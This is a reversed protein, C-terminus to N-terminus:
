SPTTATARDLLPALLDATRDAAGLHADIYSFAQRGAYERRSEDDLWGLLIRALAEADEAEAGGGRGLLDTAARSNLHRPGFVVPLGAAAPELVSHLGHRHFGGGVFAMTGGTYLPALIGVRDVVVVDAGVGGRAEVDSLREASWGWREADAVVSAVHARSPEHPALILRLVGGAARVRDLAPFLVAEDAPWTSGAVLTPQADALFPALWPASPDAAAARRAASDIAPDGTVHLRDRPVGLAVLRGADEDAIATALTLTRWTPRLLWRAPLALRGADPPVTGAVLVTPVGRRRATEVMVPWVETKTFVVLDPRFADLVGGIPRKLDWPMYDAVGVPMRRALGEASPSFHTFLSQLGPVREELAELVVRAQLGEGVSPAHIWVGPRKPERHERAWERIRGAAGRRGAVGRALKSEGRLVSPALAAFAGLLARYLVLTPRM